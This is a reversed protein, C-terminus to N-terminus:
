GEPFSAMFEADIWEQGRQYHKRFLGEHEAGLRKMFVRFARNDAFFSWIIKRFGAGFVGKIATRAAELKENSSVNEREFVLHGLAIGDGVNEFWVAGIFQGEKLAAYSKGGALQDNVAKEVFEEATQPARSDIMQMPFMEKLLFWIRVYLQVPVPSVLEIAGETAVSM